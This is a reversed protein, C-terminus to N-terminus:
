PLVRSGAPQDAAATQPAEPGAPVPAHARVNEFARRVAAVDGEGAELARLRAELAAAARGLEPHGFSGAGGALEHAIRRAARAAGADPGDSLRALLEELEAIRGASREVFRRRLEGLAARLRDSGASM